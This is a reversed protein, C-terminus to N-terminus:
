WLWIQEIKIHITIPSLLRDLLGPWKHICPGFRIISFDRRLCIVQCSIARTLFLIPQDKILGDKMLVSDPKMALWVFPSKTNLLISKHDRLSYMKYKKLQYGPKPSHWRVLQDILDRSHLCIPVGHAFLSTKIEFKFYELDVRNQNSLWEHNKIKLSQSGCIVLDFLTM